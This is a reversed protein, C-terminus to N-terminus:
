HHIGIRPRCRHLLNLRSYLRQRASLERRFALSFEHLNQVAQVRNCLGETGARALEIVDTDRALAMLPVIGAKLLKDVGTALAVHAHAELRAVLEGSQRLRRPV